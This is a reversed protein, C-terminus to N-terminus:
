ESAEPWVIVPEFKVAKRDVVKLRWIDASEEGEADFRGHYGRTPFADVVEQLHSVISYGRADDEWTSVLSVARRVTLTGEDTDRESTEIRFKLDRGLEGRRKANEPLFPSDKIDAWALPPEIYIEGVFKTTYGM